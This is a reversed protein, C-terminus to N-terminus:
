ERPGVYHMLPRPVVGVGLFRLLAVTGCVVKAFGPMHSM